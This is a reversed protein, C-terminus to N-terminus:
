KKGFLGSFLIEKLGKKKGTQETLELERGAIEHDPDVSLAMKFQKCAKVSLGEKKYFLGLGAYADANWPELKIAKQYHEEAKKIFMPFKAEVKALLLFYNAKGSSTRIAEELPAIAEEYRGQDYLYKGIRFSDEAVKAQGRKEEKPISDIKTDYAKRQEEDSLTQYSRTIQSFIDEIKAKKEPPLDQDLSDPHYKRALSFYAKKIEEQSSTRSVDLIQYYNLSSLEKRGSLVDAINRNINDAPAKNDM